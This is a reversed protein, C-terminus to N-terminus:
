VILDCLRNIVPVDIGGIRLTTGTIVKPDFLVARWGANLAGEIDTTPNDGVMLSEEARVGAKELAYDYLGRNPKNIDIEDSLVVVDVMLGANKLKRQQVGSFGNSLIGARLGKKKLAALIEHSGEIALRQSALRDLYIENMGDLEALEEGAFGANVFTRYFREGQLFEKTIEGRSYRDWLPLNIAEYRELWEGASSFRRGLDYDSYISLLAAESNRTFDWLTDDLDFWVFTVKDLLDCM